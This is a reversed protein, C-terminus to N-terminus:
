VTPKIRCSVPLEHNFSVESLLRDVRMERQKSGSNRHFGPFGYLQQPLSHENDMHLTAFFEKRKDMSLFDMVKTRASIQSHFCTM